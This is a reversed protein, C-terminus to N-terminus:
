EILKGNKRDDMRGVSLIDTSLNFNIIDTRNFARRGRARSSVHRHSAKLGYSLERLWVFSCREDKERVRGRTGAVLAERRICCLREISFNGKVFM